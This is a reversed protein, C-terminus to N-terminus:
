EDKIELYYGANRKNKIAVLSKIEKLKSRLNSIHVWIVSIDTDVDYGWLKDMLMDKTFFKKPNTMLTELIQYEKSSLVFKKKSAKSSLEFCSRNLTINSISIDDSVIESARRSIARLRALLEETEFPKTLYDDAGLDLGEIKDELEGKASLMLIPTKIGRSRIGKLVSLGDVKPMMIDLVIIDYDTVKLYSLAQEGDYVSDVTYNNKFLIATVAENIAVEDEAYLIRM